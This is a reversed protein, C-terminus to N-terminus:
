LYNFVEELKTITKFKHERDEIFVMQKKRRIILVNINHKIPEFGDTIVEDGIHLLESPKIQSLELLIQYNDVKQENYKDVTIIEEFYNLIGAKGLLETIVESHNGSLIYLKKDLQKLKLITEVVDDYLVKKQTTFIKEVLWNKLEDLNEGAYALDIMDVRARNYEKRFQVREAKPLTGYKSFRDKLHDPLNKSLQTCHEMFEEVSVTIGKQALLQPVLHHILPIRQAITRDFDFSIGKILCIGRDNIKKRRDMEKTLM